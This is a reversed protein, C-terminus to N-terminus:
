IPVSTRGSYVSGGFWRVSLYSIYNEFRKKPSLAKAWRYMEKDAFKRSEYSGGFHRIQGLKAAYLRDHIIYAMLSNNYPKIIGWLFSPTSRLDTEFGKPIFLKYGDSLTVNINRTFKWVREGRSNPIFALHISNPQELYKINM